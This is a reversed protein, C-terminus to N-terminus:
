PRYVRFEFDSIRLLSWIGFELGHNSNAEFKSNEKPCREECGVTFRDDFFLDLFVVLPANGGSGVLRSSRMKGRSCKWPKAERLRSGARKPTEFGVNWGGIAPSDATSRPELKSLAPNETRLTAAIM